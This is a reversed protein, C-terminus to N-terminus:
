VHFRRRTARGVACTCWMEAQEQDQPRRHVAMAVVAPVFVAATYCLELEWRPVVLQLISTPAGLGLLYSGTQAQILLLVQEHVHWVQIGLAITWWNYARGRFGPRLLVLGILATLAFSFPLWGSHVLWPFALGLVGGAHVVSWGLLYVEAAQALYEVGIALGVAAFVVLAGRHWDTNVLAHVDRWHRRGLTTPMRM